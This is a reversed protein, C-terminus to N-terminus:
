GPVAVEHEQPALEDILVDPMKVQKQNGGDIFLQYWLEVNLLAWLQPGYSMRGSENDRILQEVYTPNFLGRNRITESSLNDRLFSRAETRFWEAMPIPFGQKKRKVITDPLWRSSVKKLLYKQTLGRLKMSPPLTAAFEVLKHDLLPVRAELSVAMALKDGRALLDDPLWLKSDVYLMRNLPEVADTRNLHEAFVERTDAEMCERQVRESLLDAKADRNFLAFWNTMRSVEDPISLAFLAMKARRMGPIPRAISQLLPGIGSARFLPSFREGSYRAYGAFLEDGGEGTLVMKVHRAAERAVLYNGLSSPDAIPQDQHWVLTGSLNIMDQAQVIVEHHDTGFCESVLRAYPLENRESQGEFGVSFTKVPQNLLTSMLAVVTSSDLGGSLFAGFPVDSMLHSKVCELLLTELKAVCEEESDQTRHAFSLDWYRRSKVGDPSCLMIYGPQLAYIGHFMTLPAPIYRLAMLHGLARPDPEVRVEQACLLAKIESAFFVSGGVQAYYLPKIGLRDRAIMLTQKDEDWVAFAFMGRLANVCEVGMEEYLHAIVEGDSHSAFTHGRQLLSRRLEKYNYIEGNFVVAIKKNENLYPQHGGALDIISLRRMGMAVRTGYYEGQDDPGRHAITGLMRRLVPERLARSCDNEFIGSIGCM